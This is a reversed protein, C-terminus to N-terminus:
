SAFAHLKERDLSCSTASVPGVKLLLNSDRSRGKSEIRAVGFVGFLPSACRPQKLPVRPRVELTSQGVVPGFQTTVEM